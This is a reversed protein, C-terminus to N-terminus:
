DVYLIPGINVFVGGWKRLVEVVESKDLEQNKKTTKQYTVTLQKLTDQPNTFVPKGNELHYERRAKLFKLLPYPVFDPQLQLFDLTELNPLLPGLGHERQVSAEIFSTETSIGELTLHTLFPLGCLTASLDQTRICAYRLHFLRLTTDCKSREIFSLLPKSLEWDYHQEDTDFDIDLEVLQPAKLVQLVDITDAVVNQLRLTRLKPLLLGSNLLRESRYEWWFERIFDVTLTEVNVCHGLAAELWRTGDWDCRLTFTSLRELLNQPLPLPVNTSDDRNEFAASYKSPLHLEFSTM